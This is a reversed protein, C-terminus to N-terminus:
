DMIGRDTQSLTRKLYFTKLQVLNFIKLILLYIKFIDNVSM